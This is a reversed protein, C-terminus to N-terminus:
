LEKSMLKDKDKLTKVEDDKDKVTQQATNLATTVKELSKKSRGLSKTTQKVQEALRKNKSKEGLLMTHTDELKRKSCKVKSSLEKFELDKWFM